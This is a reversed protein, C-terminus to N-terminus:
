WKVVYLIYVLGDRRGADDVAVFADGKEGRKASVRALCRM